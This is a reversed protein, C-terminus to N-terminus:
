LIRDRMRMFQALTCIVAGIVALDIMTVAWISQLNM